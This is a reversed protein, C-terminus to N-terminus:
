LSCRSMGYEGLIMSYFLRDSVKVHGWSWAAYLLVYLRGTQYADIFLLVLSLPNKHLETLFLEHGRDCSDMLLCTLKKM